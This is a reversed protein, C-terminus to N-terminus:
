LKNNIEDVSKRIYAIDKQIAIIANDQEQNKERNTRIEAERIVQTKEVVALRNSNAGYTICIGAFIGLATLAIATWKLATNNKAM